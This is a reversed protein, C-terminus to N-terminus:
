GLVDEANQRGKFELLQILTLVFQAGFDCLLVNPFRWINGGLIHGPEVIRPGGGM